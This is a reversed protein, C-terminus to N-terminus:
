PAPTAEPTDEPNPTPTAAPGNAAEECVNIMEQANILNNEDEPFAQLLTQSIQLAEGCQAIHALAIGYRAYMYM